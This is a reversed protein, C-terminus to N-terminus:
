CAAVPRLLVLAGLGSVRVSQKDLYAMAAPELLGLRDMVVSNPSLRLVEPGQAQHMGSRAADINQRALKCDRWLRDLGGCLVVCCLLVVCLTHM